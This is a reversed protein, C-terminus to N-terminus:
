TGMERSASYTKQESTLKDIKTGLCQDGIKIDKVDYDIGM